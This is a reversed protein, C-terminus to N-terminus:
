KVRNVEIQAYVEVEGSSLEKGLGNSANTSVTYHQVEFLTPSNIRFYGSLHSLTADGTGTNSGAITGLITTSGATINRLRVRHVGARHSQSHGRLFYFGPALIFRNSALSIVQGDIDRITNLPRVNNTTAAAGGYLTGSALEHSMVAPILKLDPNYKYAQAYVVDDGADNYIEGVCRWSQFPHYYGLLEPRNHPREDSIIVQGEDSLYLYYMTSTSETVGSELDTTINWIFKNTLGSVDTGYVNAQSRLSKSRVIETTSVELEIKNESSFNKSFDFCRSGICATTNAAVMGVLIRDIIDFSAGSYRKWVGNALDYWYDGTQPASPAAYAYTPTRYSVDVTTGNDEVFVWGLSLITLVNTNSLNARVKPNGSSDFFYGRRVQSLETASNIYALLIETGNSFAALQGVRSSIETGVTGITIVSGDEGAYKDNSMTADNVACTNNSGPAATFGTKTIDTTVSIATSNISLLLNTTAGLVDFELAAGDARIFDPMSSLSREKGSVIRNPSSTILSTDLAVGDLVLSDGYINGWPLALTGLSKGSAPVGSTDRGVFSGLLSATLENTHSADIIDGNVYATQLTETGM